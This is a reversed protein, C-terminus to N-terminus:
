QCEGKFKLHDNIENREKDRSKKKENKKKLDSMQLIWDHTWYMTNKQSDSLCNTGIGGFTIHNTCRKRAM